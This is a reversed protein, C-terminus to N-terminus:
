RLAELKDVTIVPTHPWREDLEEEGSVVVRKGWYDKLVLNTSHLYNITKGNLLSELVFYTPAQISVSRKVIGERTVVRKVDEDVEPAVAGAAITPESSPKITISAATAAPLPDPTVSVPPTSVLPTPAPTVALPPTVTTAPPPVEIVPPKVATEAPPPPIVAVAPPPTPPPISVIAAAPPAENAIMHAAVFAFSNAPPEIRIWDGKTEIEKVATGKTMTGVVSYNEGPGGRLNLKKPVVTKSAADVFHASIWVPANTPLAIKAWKAPEDTKPSKLTVEELVDIRDGRQLHTVIESSIAAKGRVNLNKVKVVAPGPTLAKAEEKKPEEKKASKSGNKTTSKTVAKPPPKPASDAPVTPPNETANQALAASGFWALSMSLTLALPKIKM